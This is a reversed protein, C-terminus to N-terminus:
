DFQYEAIVSVDVTASAAAVWVEASTELVLPVDAPWECGGAGGADQAAAQTAGIRISQGIGVFTVSKRRFDSDVPMAQASTVNHLTYPAIRRSPLNHVRVPSPVDVLLVPTDEKEDQLVEDVPTQSDFDNSV